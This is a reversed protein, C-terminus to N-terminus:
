NAPIPIVYHDFPGGVPGFGTSENCIGRISNKNQHRFSTFPQDVRVNLVVVIFSLGYFEAYREDSLNRHPGAYGGFACQNPTYCRVSNGQRDTYRFSGNEPNEKNQIARNIMTQMIGVADGIWHSYMWKHEFSYTDYGKPHLVRHENYTVNSVGEWPFREDPGGTNIHYPLNIIGPNYGFLNKTFGLEIRIWGINPGSCQGSIRCYETITWQPTGRTDECYGYPCRDDMIPFHGEPDIYRIPNNRVFLSRDCTMPNEPMPVITDGEV